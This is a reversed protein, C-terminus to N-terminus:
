GNLPYHPEDYRGRRQIAILACEVGQPRDMYDM